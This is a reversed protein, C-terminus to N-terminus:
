GTRARKQQEIQYLTAQKWLKYVHGRVESGMIELYVHIEVMTLGLAVAFSWWIAEGLMRREGPAGRGRGVLVM